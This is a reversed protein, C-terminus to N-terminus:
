GSYGRAAFRFLPDGPVRWSEVRCPAKQFTLARSTELVHINFQSMAKVRMELIPVIAPVALPRHAPSSVNKRTRKSM